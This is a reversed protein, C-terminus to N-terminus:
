KLLDGNKRMTTATLIHEALFDQCRKLLDVMNPISEKLSCYIEADIIKVEALPKWKYFTSTGYGGTSKIADLKKTGTNTKHLVGSYM